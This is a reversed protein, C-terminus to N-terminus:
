HLKPSCGCQIQPCWIRLCVFIPGGVMWMYYCAEIRFVNLSCAAVCFVPYRLTMTLQRSGSSRRVM